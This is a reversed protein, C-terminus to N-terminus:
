TKLGLYGGRVGESRGPEAKGLMTAEVELHPVWGAGPVLRGHEAALPRLVHVQEVRRHRGLAAAAAHLGGHGGVEGHRGGGWIAIVM